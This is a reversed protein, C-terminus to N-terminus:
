VPRYLVNIQGRSSGDVYRVIGHGGSMREIWVVNLRSATM